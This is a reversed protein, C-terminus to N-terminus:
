VTPGAPVGGAELFRRLHSGHLKVSGILPTRRSFGHCDSGGTILLDYEKALRTYRKADVGRHKSHYCELGDLGMEALRPVLDDRRSLAPHAFVALGGAGHILAIAEELSIRYKPAWGPGDKQLFNSFADDLSECVRERVMARAVHPRGPARCRAVEFVLEPDLPAGHATLRACMEHIRNVRADQLRSTTEILARNDPDLFYGLVHIEVGSEEATLETGMVFGLGRSEAARKAEACGDLTDHDTLAITHLGAGVAREVLEEPTFTGDSHYTHLHLDGFMDM